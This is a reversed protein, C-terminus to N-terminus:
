DHRAAAQEIPVRSKILSGDHRLSLLETLNLATSRSLPTLEGLQAATFPHTVQTLARNVAEIGGAVELGEGIAQPHEVALGALREVAARDLAGRAREIAAIVAPVGWVVYTYRQTGTVIDVKRTIGSSANHVQQITPLFISFSGRLRNVPHAKFLLRYSTLHLNGGIAEMGSMGVTGLLHDFAFRSLGHEDPRIVANAKKSLLAAEGPLLDAKDLGM